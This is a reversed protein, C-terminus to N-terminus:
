VYMAQLSAAIVSWKNFEGVVVGSSELVDLVVRLLAFADTVEADEVREAVEDVGIGVGGVVDMM